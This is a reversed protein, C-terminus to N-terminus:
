ARWSRYCLPWCRIIPRQRQRHKWRAEIAGGGPAQEQEERRRQEGAFSM